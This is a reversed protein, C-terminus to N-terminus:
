AKALYTSLKCGTLISRGITDITTSVCGAVVWRPGMHEQMALALQRPPFNLALAREATFALDASEYFQAVDWLSQIVRLGSALAVEVQLSRCAISTLCSNGKVADDCAGAQLPEWAEVPGGMFAMLLHYFTTVTGVTRSGGNKKALLGLMAGFAQVPLAVQDIARAILKSLDKLSM